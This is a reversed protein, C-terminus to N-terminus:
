QGPIILVKSRGRTPLSSPSHISSVHTGEMQLSSIGQLLTFPRGICHATASGHVSGTWGVYTDIIRGQHDCVTQLIISPVLKRSRYCQGDPGSPPKIPVHCSDIAGTAKLFARHKALEAFGHSVIHLDEPTRPLHIVQHRIAVVEETVWATSLPIPYQLCGPFSETPHKVQWGSHM